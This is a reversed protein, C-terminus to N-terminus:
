YGKQRGHSGQSEWSAIGELDYRAGKFTAM